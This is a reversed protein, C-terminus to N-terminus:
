LFFTLFSLRVKRWLDGEHSFRLFLPLSRTLPILIFGVFTCTTFERVSDVTQLIAFLREFGISTKIWTKTM